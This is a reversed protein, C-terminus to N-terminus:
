LLCVLSARTFLLHSIRGMPLFDRRRILMGENNAEVNQKGVFGLAIRVSRCSCSAGIEKGCFSARIDPGQLKRKFFRTRENGTILFKATMEDANFIVVLIM